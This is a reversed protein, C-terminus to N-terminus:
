LPNYLNSSFAQPQLLQQLLQTQGWLSLLSSFMARAGCRTAANQARGRSGGDAGPGWRASGVAGAGGRGGGGETCLADM